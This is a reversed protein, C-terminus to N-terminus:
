EMSMDDIDNDTLQQRREIEAEQRNLIVDKKMVLADTVNDILKAVTGAMGLRAPMHDRLKNARKEDLALKNLEYLQHPAFNTVKADDIDKIVAEADFFSQHERLNKLHWEEDHAGHGRTSGTEKRLERMYTDEMDIVRQEIEQNLGALEQQRGMRALEKAPEALFATWRNVEQLMYGFAAIRANYMNDFGREKDFFNKEWFHPVALSHRFYSDPLAYGTFGESELDQQHQVQSERLEKQAHAVTTQIRQPFHPFDQKPLASQHTAEFIAENGDSLVGTDYDWTTNAVKAAPDYNPNKDRTLKSKKFVTLGSM